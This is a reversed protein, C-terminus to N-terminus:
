RMHAHLCTSCLSHLRSNFWVPPADCDPPMARVPMADPTFHRPTLKAVTASNTAAFVNTWSLLALAPYHLIFIFHENNRFTWFCAFDSFFKHPHTFKPPTVVARVDYLLNGNNDVFGAADRNCQTEDTERNLHLLTRYRQRSDDDCNEINSIYFSEERSGIQPM